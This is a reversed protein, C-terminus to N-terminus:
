AHEYTARVALEETRGDPWVNYMMIQLQRERATVVLRWGWDPGPPAAYTGRVDLVGDKLTGTCAMVKYGNHFSDVWHCSPVGAAPDYGVLMSGQEPRGQRAWTQDMRVFRGGLMPTVRVESTSEDAPADPSVYLRNTGRWTGACAILQELPSMTVDYRM